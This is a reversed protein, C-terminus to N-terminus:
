HMLIKGKESGNEPMIGEMSELATKIGKRCADVAEFDPRCELLGVPVSVSILSLIDCFADFLAQDTRIASCGPLLLSFAEIDHKRMFKNGPAQVLRVVGGLPRCVNRYCPTKGSWPTGYVMIGGIETRVVPNDDNILSTGPVHKLWLSSHTSKGTGSKGTFLYAMRGDDVASAHVAVAGHRLVSQSYIIRLLSALAGSVHPDNWDIDAEAYSFDKGAAMLHVPSGPRPRLRVIYQGDTQSLTTRGMDNSMDDVPREGPWSSPLSKTADLVFLLGSAADDESVFPVFSPLLKLADKGEPLVAGFTFGAVKYYYIAKDSMMKVLKM